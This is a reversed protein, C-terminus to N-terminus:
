HPSPVPRLEFDPPFTTRSRLCFDAFDPSEISITISNAPARAPRLGHPQHPHSRLLESVLEIFLEGDIPPNLFRTAQRRLDARLDDPTGILVVPVDPQDARFRFLLHM